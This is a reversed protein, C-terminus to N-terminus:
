FKLAMAANLKFEIKKEFIAKKLRFLPMKAV